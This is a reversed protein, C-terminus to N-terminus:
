KTLRKAIERMSALHHDDHEAVFFAMDILRMKANLRPHVAIRNLVEVDVAELRDVFHKRAARFAALLEESQRQNHGADWTKRNQLDAPRMRDREALYDDIRADHLEDLDFLHGVHDQISWSDNVRVALLNESFSRIMEELRAPTGRLRELISPFVEIPFNFEFNREFWPTRELEAM